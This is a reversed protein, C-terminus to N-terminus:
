SEFYSGGLTEPFCAVKTMSGVQFFEDELGSSVNIKM